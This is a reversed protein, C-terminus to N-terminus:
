CFEYFKLIYFLRLSIQYSICRIELYKSDKKEQKVYLASKLLEGDLTYGCIGGVGISDLKLDQEEDLALKAQNFLVLHTKEAEWAFRFSVEGAYEKQM